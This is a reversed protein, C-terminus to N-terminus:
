KQINQPYKFFLIVGLFAGCVNVAAIAYQACYLDYILQMVCFYLGLVFYFRREGNM